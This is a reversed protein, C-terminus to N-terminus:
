LVVSVCSLSGRPEDSAVPDLDPIQEAKMEDYGIFGDMDEDVQM